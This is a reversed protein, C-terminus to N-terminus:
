LGIFDWDVSARAEKGSESIFRLAGKEFRVSQVRGFSKAIKVVGHIYRVSLPKTKSLKVTTPVGERNAPNKKASDTLGQALYGCIDELGICLNRSSWPPAHRGRNAMWFVTAPLVAPNKLSFWLYGESPVAATTWHPKSSEKAFLGLIDVFGNRAPFASCDAYPRDKWITPVKQLNTFKKGPALAYYEQGFTALQDLSRPATLGFRFPATKILMSGEVDPPALTAHHGLTMEGSYGELLHEIYLVNQGDKLLIKKTVKGARVATNMQVSFETTGNRLNIRPSKWTKGSTEGHIEHKEKKYENVAGFPMCFFDGRLVELINPKINEKAEAWPAIYYPQIPKKTDKFFNVPSMHGGKQTLALEVNKNSVIWSKQGAVLKIEPKM